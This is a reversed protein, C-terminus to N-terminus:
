FEGHSRYRSRRRGTQITPLNSAHSPQFQTTLALRYTSSYLYTTSSNKSVQLHSLSLTRQGLCEDIFNDIGQDKAEGVMDKMYVDEPEPGLLKYRIQALCARFSAIDVFEPPLVYNDCDDELPTATLAPTLMTM